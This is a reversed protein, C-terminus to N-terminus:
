SRPADGRAANWRACRAANLLSKYFGKCSKSSVGAYGLARARPFADLTADSEDIILPMTARLAHSM